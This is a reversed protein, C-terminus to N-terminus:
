LIAEGGATSNVGCVPPSCLTPEQRAPTSGFVETTLGYKSDWSIPFRSIQSPLTIGRTLEPGEPVGCAARETRAASRIMSRCKLHFFSAPGWRHLPKRLSNSLLIADPLVGQHMPFERATHEKAPSSPGGSPPTNQRPGGKKRGRDEIRPCGLLTPPRDARKSAPSAPSKLGTQQLNTGAPGDIWILEGKRRCIM